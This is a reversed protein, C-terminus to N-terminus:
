STFYAAVGCCGLKLTEPIKRSAMTKWASEEKMMGCHWAQNQKEQNQKEQAALRQEVAALAKKLTEIEQRMQETSDAPAAVAGSVSADAAAASQAQAEPGLQHFLAVLLLGYVIKPM